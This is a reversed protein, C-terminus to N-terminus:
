NLGLAAFIKHMESIGKYINEFDFNGTKQSNNTATELNPKLRRYIDQRSNKFYKETKQYDTLHKKLEKELISYTAFNAFVL